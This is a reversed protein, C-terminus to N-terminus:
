VDNRIAGRMRRSLFLMRIQPRGEASTTHSQGKSFYNTPDLDERERHLRVKKKKQLNSKRGYLSVFLSLPPSVPWHMNQGHQKHASTSKEVHEGSKEQNQKNPYSPPKDPHIITIGIMYLKESLNCINRPARSKDALFTFLLLLQTPLPCHLAPPSPPPLYEKIEISAIDWNNFM